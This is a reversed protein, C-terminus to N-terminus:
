KAAGKGRFPVTNKYFAELYAKTKDASQRKMPESASEGKKNFLRMTDEKVEFLLTFEEGPKLDLRDQFGNDNFLQGLGWLKVVGETGRELKLSDCKIERREGKVEAKSCESIMSAKMGDLLPNASRLEVTMLISGDDKFQTLFTGEGTEYVWAGREPASECSSGMMLTAALLTVSATSLTKWPRTM